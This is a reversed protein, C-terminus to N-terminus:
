VCRCMRHARLFLGRGRFDAGVRTVWHNCVSYLLLSPMAKSTVNLFLKPLKQRVRERPDSVNPAGLQCSAGRHAWAVPLHHLQTELHGQGDLRPGGEAKQWQVKGVSGGSLRSCLCAMEVTTTWDSLWTQTKVLGHATACWAEGEKVMERLTSLSLTGQTLSAMVGM